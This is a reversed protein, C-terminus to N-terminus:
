SMLARQGHECELAILDRREFREFAEELAYAAHAERRCPGFFNGFPRLASAIVGRRQALYGGDAYANGGAASLRQQRGM